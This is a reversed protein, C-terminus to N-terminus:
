CSRPPHPSRSPARAPVPSAHDLEAHPFLRFAASEYAWRQWAEDPWHREIVLIRHLENSVVAYLVDAAEDATLTSNFGDKTALEAALARMTALRQDKVRGLLENVDADAAATQIVDYIPAVRDVVALTNAVVTRLSRPGDLDDRVEAAWARDLLATRETDGVVATDHAASLIAAKSGFALYLTQVAVGAAAAIAATTTDLYGRERFLTTAAAVVRTRTQQGRETKGAKGM